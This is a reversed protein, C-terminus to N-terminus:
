KIDVVISLDNCSAIDNEDGDQGDDIKVVVDGVHITDGENVLIDAIIGDSPSPIEANVKDTEVLFLTDGDKVKDGVKFMLKLVKGEHIGEGIDAFKFDIM